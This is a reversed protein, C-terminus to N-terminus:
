ARDLRGYRKVSRRYKPGPYRRKAWPSAPRALRLSYFVVVTMGATAVVNAVDRFTAFFFSAVAVAWSVLGLYAQWRHGKSYSVFGAVPIVVIAVGTTIALWDVIAVTEHHFV